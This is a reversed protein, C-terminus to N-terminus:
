YQNPTMDCVSKFDRTFPWVSAFGSELGIVLITWQANKPDKLLMRAHKIRMDNIFQNFNRANFHHRFVRSIRYESVNM